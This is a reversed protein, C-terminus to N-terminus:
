MKCKGQVKLVRGSISKNNYHCHGPRMAAMYMWINVIATSPYPPVPLWRLHLVLIDVSRTCQKVVLNRQSM